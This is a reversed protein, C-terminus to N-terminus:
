RSNQAFKVMTDVIAKQPEIRTLKGPIWGELRKITQVVSEFEKDNLDRLKRNLELGTFKKIDSQYKTTNNEHPPAYKAVAEELTLNCYNKGRLETRLAADGIDESAFVAFGNAEGVSMKSKRIAGPNKNRWPLTGGQRVEVTGDQYIYKVTRKGLVIKCECKDDSEDLIDQDKTSYSKNLFTDKINNNTLFFTNNQEIPMKVNKIIPEAMVDTYLLDFHPMKIFCFKTNSKNNQEKQVNDNKGVHLSLAGFLVTAFFAKTKFPSYKLFNKQKM